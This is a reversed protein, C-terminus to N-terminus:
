TPTPPEAAPHMVAHWWSELRSPEPWRVVPVDDGSGSTITPTTTQRKGARRALGDGRPERPTATM